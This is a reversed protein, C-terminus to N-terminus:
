IRQALGEVIATKGVGPEGILCPNNKGRRSLIQIMRNLEPERGILPDLEGARARATLDSAYQDLLPTGGREGQRGTRAKKVRAYEMPKGMAYLTEGYVQDLPLTLVSLIQM